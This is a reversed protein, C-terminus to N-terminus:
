LNDFEADIHNIEYYLSDTFYQATIHYTIGKRWLLVIREGIFIELGYSFAVGFAAGSTKYLTWYFDSKANAFGYNPYL